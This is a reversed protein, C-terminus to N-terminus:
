MVVCAYVYKKDVPVSRESLLKEGALKCAAENAHPAGFMETNLPAPIPALSILLVILYVNM